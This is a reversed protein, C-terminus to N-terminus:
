HSLSEAKLISLAMHRIACSRQGVAGDGMGRLAPSSWLDVVRGVQWMGQRFPAHGCPVNSSQM